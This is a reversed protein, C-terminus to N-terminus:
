VNITIYQSNLTSAVVADIFYKSQFNTDKNSLNSNQPFNKLKNVDL